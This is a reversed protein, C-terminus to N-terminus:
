AAANSSYAAVPPFICIPDIDDLGQMIDSSKDTMTDTLMENLDTTKVDRENSITEEKVELNVAKRDRYQRVEVQYREKEVKAQEVFPKRSAEDLCRWKQGIHRALEAFSVKGHTRRHERKGQRARSGEFPQVVIQGATSLMGSYSGGIVIPTDPSPKAEDGSLM